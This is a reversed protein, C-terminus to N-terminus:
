TYEERSLIVTYRAGKVKSHLHADEGTFGVRHGFHHLQQQHMHLQVAEVRLTNVALRARGTSRPLEVLNQLSTLFEKCVLQFKFHVFKLRLLVLFRTLQLRNSLNSNWAVHHEKHKNIPMMPTSCLCVYEIYNEGNKLECSSKENDVLSVSSIIHCSKKERKIEWM